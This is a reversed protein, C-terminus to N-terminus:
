GTALVVDAELSAHDSLGVERWDHHYRAATVRLEASAFVHDLRWGGGHGSIRRFTWSPERSAYGHTVRFADAFGLECLGPVVGLEAQDWPEGREPRLRGKSDRAFSLVSGDPLERRPTNLDGCLIRPGTGAALGARLASLTDPKIWGNAANPVHVAHVVVPAPAVAAAITTEPWPVSLPEAPRPPERAAIVVGTRRRGIPQRAPDASELSCAAHPLGITQLAARWLPWSRATVEQLAIVDPAREALAAAQAALQEIRRNVNWTILRV